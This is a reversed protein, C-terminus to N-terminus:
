VLLNFLKLAQYSRFFPPDCKQFGLNVSIFPQIYNPIIFIGNTFMIIDWLDFVVKNEDENFCVFFFLCSVKIDKNVYFTYQLIQFHHALNQKYEEWFSSCNNQLCVVITGSSFVKLNHIDLNISSRRKKTLRLIIKIKLKYGPFNRFNLWDSHHKCFGLFVMLLRFIQVKARWKILSSQNTRYPYRFLPSQLPNLLFLLNWTLLDTNLTDM